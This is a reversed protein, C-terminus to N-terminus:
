FIDEPDGGTFPFLFFIRYRGTQKGLVISLDDTHEGHNFVFTSKNALSKLSRQETLRMDGEVQYKNHTRAGQFIRATPGEYLARDYPTYDGFIYAPESSLLINNEVTISNEEGVDKGEIPIVLWDHLNPWMASTAAEEEFHGYGGLRPMTRQWQRVAMLDVPSVRKELSLRDELLNGNLTVRIFRASNADQLDILLYGRLSALKPLDNKNILITQGMQQGAVLPARWQHWTRSRLVPALVIAFIALPIFSYLRSAWVSRILLKAKQDLAILDKTLLLMVVVPIAINIAHWTRSDSIFPFIWLEIGLLYPRVFVWFLFLVVISAVVRRGKPNAWLLQLEVAGAGALLIVLGAAPLQYRIEEVYYLTIFLTNWIVLSALLFVFKHKLAYRLGWAALFLIGTHLLRLLDCSVPFCTAYSNAPSKLFRTMRELELIALAFPNQRLVVRYVVDWWTLGKIGDMGWGDTALRHEVVLSSQIAGEGYVSGGFRALWLRWVITPLAYGVLLAIIQGRTKKPSILVWLAIFLVGYFSFVHRTFGALFLLIGAILFWIWRKKALVLLTSIIIFTPVAVPSISEPMWSYVFAFLPTYFTATIGVVLAIAPSFFKWALLFLLVVFGAHLMPAVTQPDLHLRQLLVLYAMYLPAGHLNLADTNHRILWESQTIGKGGLMDTVLVIVGNAGPRAHMYEVADSPENYDRTAIFGLRVQYAIWFFLFPFILILLKKM